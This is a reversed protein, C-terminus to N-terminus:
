NRDAPSRTQVEIGERALEYLRRGGKRVASYMPPVQEGPGLFGAAVATLDMTNRPPPPAEATVKGTIDLTDTEVGLRISGEYAKQAAGLFQAIRTGRDLCLPLLGTAMPDLTGLHGISAPRHQRKIARVVDASTKGAPKDVLLIGDAM